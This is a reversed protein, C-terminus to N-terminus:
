STLITRVSNSSSSSFAAGNTRLRTKQQGNMLVCTWKWRHWDLPTGTSSNAAQASIFSSCVVQQFFCSACIIQRSTRFVFTAHMYLPFAAWVQLQSWPRNIKGKMSCNRLNLNSSHRDRHPPDTLLVVAAILYLKCPKHRVQSWAREIYSLASKQQQTEQQLGQLNTNLKRVRKKHRRLEVQLGRIRAANLDM